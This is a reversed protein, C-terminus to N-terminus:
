GRPVPLAWGFNDGAEAVDLVGTSNQHWFQNGSGSLGGTGAGYLVNVAGADSITGLNELPVGVALDARANANFDGAGVSSGFHDGAEAADLVGGAGQRWFQNGSGSLGGTGAGYLVNVAGADSIAGVNELPVGVALDARTNGNFDSGTLAWGFNDSAEAADLVGGAGQRWFQNGTATLGGTGAGYLVNVAGADATTGVNEFPVGVALDARANGNFDGAALSWGFNDSAEAADVVGGGGQRWLQNGTATLGGTGAGYLVNVAGADATTGVNEHPVGIALDARANGNFDAAALSWGFNDNAESADAVGTSEQDWRQNGTATLGDPGGYLVNVAGAHFFGAVDDFPVGIALDARGDGNFDGAALSRGFQEGGVGTGLVGATGQHWLQNGASSLGGPTGYLVNVAGTDKGSGGFDEGPVGVALDARGDGDFDGAALARGFRNTAQAVGQIGASDQSWLQNGTSSLGGPGTGYLVNIAGADSITGVNEQPVGAALDSRGDGNFDAQVAGLAAPCFSGFGLAVLCGLFLRRRM